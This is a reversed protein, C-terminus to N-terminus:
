KENKEGNESKNGYEDFVLDDPIEFEPENIEADGKDIKFIYALIAAVATYLKDSIEKGIEGTFYLARALIPSRFVTVNSNKALDIIKEAMMGRGLALIIPAGESGVEYKLAVAFHTPNTIVVSADKVDDLAASQQSARQAIENQLRRIKQKVEPSGDTDKMEDKVEKITMRLKEIHQHREWLFDIIAIISLIILLAVTMKPFIYFYSKLAEKLDRDALNIITTIDNQIVFFAVGGLLLVKLISKLLEMLSKMSFIKKRLGSIPDLKSAKPAMAKLSFNIGGGVCFQTIISTILMPIGIILVIILVYKILKGISILPNFFDVVEVNFIFMKKWVGLFSPIFSIIFMVVLLGIFISTFVFMEKSTLVQGDERSKEIKRSTPEETKEQTQNEEAM